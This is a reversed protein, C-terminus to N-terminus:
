DDDPREPREPREPRDEIEPREPREPRDEREPREVREPREPREFRETPEAREERGSGERYEFPEADELLSEGLDDRDRRERWGGGREITRWTREGADRREIELREARVRGDAELRGGVRTRTAGDLGLGAGDGADPLGSLDIAVGGLELGREGPVARAFGELSVRTVAGGFPVVPEPAVEDALLRGGELRGCLRARSGAVLAPAGPEAEVSLAGIAFTGDPRAEVTGIVGVEADPETREVRSAAIEGDGRRLGSVRVFDGEALAADLRTEPGVRVRQGLVELAGGAADIRAVPGAVEHRLEIARAHLAAGRPEASIRVVDGRRLRGASIAAGESTTVVTADDYGVRLGNVCLSGFGTITGEIGTGGIGDEDDAGSWIGTGGIGGPDEASATPAGTGGIGDGGTVCFQAAAPSACLLLAALATGALRREARM